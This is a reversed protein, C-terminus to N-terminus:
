GGVAPAFLATVSSALREADVASPNDVLLRGFYEGLAILAHAAIAPDIGARERGALALHVLLEFRARVLERDREIRDRVLPPTDVAVAFIPKWTRRDASVMAVLDVVTRHLYGALDGLDPPASIRSMLQDLARREQRDLLANLLPALGDFVHYVVPRTVGLERAIAEISVARYGDRDIILLAADLIQERREAAPRRPTYPNRRRTGTGTAAPNM